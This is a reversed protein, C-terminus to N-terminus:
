HREAQFDPVAFPGAEEPSQTGLIEFLEERRGVVQLHYDSLTSLNGGCQLKSENFFGSFKNSSDEGLPPM